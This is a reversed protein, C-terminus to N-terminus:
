RSSPPDSESPPTSSVRDASGRMSMMGNLEGEARSELSSEPGAEM